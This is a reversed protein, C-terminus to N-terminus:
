HGSWVHLWGSGSGVPVTFTILGTSRTTLIPSVPSGAGVSEWALFRIYQIGSTWTDTDDVSVGQFFKYVRHRKGLYSKTLQEDLRIDDPPNEAM